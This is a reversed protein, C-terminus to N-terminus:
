FGVGISIGRGQYYFGSSPGYYYNQYQYPQVYVPQPPAVVVTPVRVVPPYCTIHPNTYYGHHGHHYGEYGHFGTSASSLTAATTVATTPGAYAHTATLLLLGLLTFGLGMTIRKM